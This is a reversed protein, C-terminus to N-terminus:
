TESTTYCIKFYKMCLVSWLMEIRAHLNGAQQIIVIDYSLYPHPPYKFDM